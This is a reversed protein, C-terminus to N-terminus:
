DGVPLPGFLYRQLTPAIAAALQAPPLSALPEAKIVHRAMILGLMQSGVLTVRLEAEELDLMETVPAWVDRMLLDRVMRAAEPESAAARVLGILRSRAQPNELVGVLFRALRDGFTERDGQLLAPLAQAPDFPLRVVEVFLRQKSGFFHAILAQDVGAQAAIGRMSTRDYGQEAFQRRAAALIAEQTGSPGPRRGSRRAM